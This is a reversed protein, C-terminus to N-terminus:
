FEARTCHRRREPEQRLSANALKRSHPREWCRCHSTRRRKQALRLTPIRYTVSTHPPPNSPTGQEAARRSGTRRPDSRPSGPCAWSLQGRMGDSVRRRAASKDCSPM